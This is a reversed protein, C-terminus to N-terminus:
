ESSRLSSSDRKKGDEFLLSEKAPPRDPVRLLLKPAGDKRRHTCFPHPTLTLDMDDTLGRAIQGRNANSYEGPEGKGDPEGPAELSTDDRSACRTEQGPGALVVLFREKKWRPIILIGQRCQSSGGRLGTRRFSSFYARHAGM